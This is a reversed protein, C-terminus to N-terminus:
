DIEIVSNLNTATPAAQQVFRQTASAATSPTNNQVSYAMGGNMLGQNPMVGNMMGPNPNLFVNPLPAADPIMQYYM